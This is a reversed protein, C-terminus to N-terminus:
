HVSKLIIKQLSFTSKNNNNNNNNNNNWEISVNTVDQALISDGVM